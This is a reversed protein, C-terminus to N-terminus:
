QRACVGRACSDLRSADLCLTRAARSGGCEFMFQVGERQHARLFQCLVPPVLIPRKTDDDTEDPEWLALEEHPLFEAQARARPSPPHSRSDTIPRESSSPKRAEPEPAAEEAEADEEPECSRELPKM